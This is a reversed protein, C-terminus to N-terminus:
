RTPSSRFVHRVLLVESRGEPPATWKLQGGRISLLDASGEQPQTGPVPRPQTLALAGLTDPPAPLSITQGPAVAIRMDAVIGQM